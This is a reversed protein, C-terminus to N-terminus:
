INSNINLLSASIPSKFYKNLINKININNAIIFGSSHTTKNPPIKYRKNDSQELM